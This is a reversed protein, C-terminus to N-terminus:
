AGLAHQVEEADPLDLLALAVADEQRRREIEHRVAVRVFGSLGENVNLHLHLDALVEPKLNFAITKKAM